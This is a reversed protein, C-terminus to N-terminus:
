GTVAPLKRSNARWIDQLRGHPSLVFVDWGARILSIRATTAKEVMTARQGEPLTDPDIPYVFAAMKPGFVTGIRVMSAVEAPQPPATVVVLTTDPVASTRLPVLMSGLPRTPTHGVSALSELFAEETVPAPRLQGAALRLAFGNRSLHVGLSAAVSVAREFPESYAQGFAVVRTDLVVTALSRRASEDQRIMLKGGRAV